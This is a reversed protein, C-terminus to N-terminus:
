PPPALGPRCEGGPAKQMEAMRAIWWGAGVLMPALLGFRGGFPVLAAEAAGMVWLWVAFRQWRRVVLVGALVVMSLEYLFAHYDVALGLLVASGFLLDFRREDGRLWMAAGAMLVVGSVVATVVALERPERVVFAMLGRVSPMRKVSTADHAMGLYMVAARYSPVLGRGVLAFSGAVMALVTALAGGVVRWRRMVIFFFLVPLALQFRFFTLGFVCGGWVDWGDEMLLFAGTYLALCLIHDQGAGLGAGLPILGAAFVAGMQTGTTEGLFRRLGFAIACLAAINLAEWVRFATEVGMWTLPAFVLAEVAPHVWPLFKKAGLAAQYQRQATLSYLEVRDQRLMEGAAYHSAFDSSTANASVAWPVFVSLLCVMAAITNLWIRSIQSAPQM